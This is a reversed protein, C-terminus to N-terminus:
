PCIKGHYSPFLASSARRHRQERRRRSARAVRSRRTCLRYICIMSKGVSENSYTKQCIYLLTNYYFISLKLYYQSAISYLM